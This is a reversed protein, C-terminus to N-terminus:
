RAGALTAAVVVAEFLYLAGVTQWYPRWITVWRYQRVIQRGVPSMGRTTM